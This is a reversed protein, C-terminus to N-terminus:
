NICNSMACKEPTKVIVGKTRDNPLRNEDLIAEFLPQVVEAAIKPDAKFIYVDLIDQCHPKGNTLSTFAAM